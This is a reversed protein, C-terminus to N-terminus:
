AALPDSPSETHRRADERLSLVGLCSKAVNYAWDFELRYTEPSLGIRDLLRLFPADNTQPNSRMLLEAIQPHKYTPHEREITQATDYVSRVEAFLADIDPRQHWYELDAQNIAVTEQIIERWRGELTSAEAEGQDISSRIGMMYREFRARFEELPLDFPDGGVMDTRQQPHPMGDFTAYPSESEQAQVM